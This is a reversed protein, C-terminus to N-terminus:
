REAGPVTEIGLNRDPITFRFVSGEGQTSEVWIRGGHREVIRKCISLGMGTGSYVDSPHLRRFLEFVRKANEPEIGIGNDAVSFEWVKGDRTAGVHVRLPSSDAFKLANSLLNQLLQRFAAPHAEITPMEDSTVVAGKEEISEALLETAEELATQCNVLAREMPERSVRSYELLDAILLRMRETGDLISTVFQRGRGNLEQGYEEAFTQALRSMLRLPEALDHSADYAFQELELNSRELAATKFELESHMRELAEAARKRETVDQVTGRAFVIEGDEVVAERHAEIRRVEGSPRVISCEFEIVTADPGAEEILQRVRDRDHDHIRELFTEYTPEFEDPGLGFIEYLGDSWTLEGTRLDREWSGIRSLRQAHALMRESEEIRRQADLWATVDRSSSHFEIIAGSDPDIVPRITSQVWFYRGDKHLTRHPPTTLPKPDELQEAHLEALSAADEPHILDYASRGVLEEPEWGGVHSSGPSVYRIIGRADSVAIVDTSNEALLRYLAETEASGEETFRGLDEGMMDIVQTTQLLRLARGV